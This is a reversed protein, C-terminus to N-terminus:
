LCLVSSCSMYYERCWVDTGVIEITEGHWTECKWDGRLPLLECLEAVGSINSIWYFKNHQILTLDWTASSSQVTVMNSDTLGLSFIEQRWKCFVATLTFNREHDTTTTDVISRGNFFHWCDKSFTPWYHCVFILQVVYPLLRTETCWIQRKNLLVLEVWYALSRLHRM